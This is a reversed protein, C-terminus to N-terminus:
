EVTLTYLAGWVRDRGGEFIVLVEYSGPDIDSIDIRRRVSTGPYLSATPGELKDKLFGDQDYFEARTEIRFWREGTNELDLELYKKGEPGQVLRRDLVVLEETGTDGIHTRIQIGYRSIQRIGTQVQLGTEPDEILEIGEEPEVMLMCWYTGKLDADPPVTITYHVDTEGQPPITIKEEPNLQLWDANSRERTGPQGYSTIGERTYHYDRLYIKVEQPEEGSNKITISAQIVEGPNLTFERSLGETVRISAEITHSSFILIFIVAIPLVWNRNPKLM